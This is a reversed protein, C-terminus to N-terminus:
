WSNTKIWERRENYEPLKLLEKAREAHVKCAADHLERLADDAFLQDLEKRFAQQQRAFDSSLEDNKNRLRWYRQSVQNKKVVVDGRFMKILFSELSRLPFHDLVVLAYSGRVDIGNLTPDDHLTTLERGAGDRWVPAASDARFDPRHNRPKDLKSSIRTITKVGRLAKRVGPTETQHRPFQETVLGPTFSEQNNAGHNLESMSLADFFGTAAMLDTLKGDGVRINIFEDVDMSIFFDAKKWEALFPVYSLAIPQFYTSKTALAPNPLHRLHGLTQLRELILDTGDTCDNTFVVFNDVGIAKHWAVWELIFPGEDKMCTAILVNPDQPPWQAEVPDIQRRVFRRVSTPKDVPVASFGKNWLMSIIGDVGEQGYVKPHFELIMLRVQSLDIDNFLGLEAGEIDCSIVTPKQRVMLDKISLPAVKVAEKYPRSDPEMSSAWFDERLYFVAPEAEDPVVIGNLLTVNKANNLRYTETVLPILAPNAEVALVSEVGPQLAAITSTVGVGAGLELIRDGQELLEALAKSEGGEYRNNRMPKEIPPTIIGPVFPVKIGQTEIIEDYSITTTMPASQHGQTSLDGSQSFGAKIEHYIRHYDENQMLKDFVEHTADRGVQTLLSLRGSTQADMREMEARVETARNKALLDISDNQDFTDWYEKDVARDHNATRGRGSKVIFRELDRLAYHNVQALSRCGPDKSRWGPDVDPDLMIGSGNCMVSPTHAFADKPKHIGIRRYAAPKFLSKFGMQRSAIQDPHEALTFEETVLGDPMTAHYSSGFAKWHITCANVEPPLADVLDGVQGQGTKVVLFEDCDLAMAWESAHYAELRSARRYAKNQWGKNRSANNFYQIFGAKEMTRLIKQTSDESDNQYIAIDTFGIVRYYAVWELLNPAENKVTLALFFRRETMPYM